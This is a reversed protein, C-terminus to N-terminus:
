NRPDRSRWKTTVAYVYVRQKLTSSSVGVLFGSGGATEGNEAADGDPYLYIACYLLEDPIRPL